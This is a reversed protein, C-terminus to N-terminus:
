NVLKVATGEEAFIDLSPLDERIMGVFRDVQAQDSSWTLAAPPARDVEVYLVATTNMSHTAEKRVMQYTILRAKCQQTQNNQLILQLVDRVPDDTQIPETM